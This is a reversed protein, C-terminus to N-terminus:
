LFNLGFLMTMLNSFHTSITLMFCWSSHKERIKTFNNSFILRKQVVLVGTKSKQNHRAETEFGPHIGESVHKMTQMCYIGWIWRRHLVQQGRPLRCPLSANTPSSNLILYTVAESCTVLCIVWRGSWASEAMFLFISLDTKVDLQRHISGLLMLNIELVFSSPSPFQNQKQEDAVQSKNFTCLLCLKHHSQFIINVYFTTRCWTWHRSFIHCGTGASEFPM